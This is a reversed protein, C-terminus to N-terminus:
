KDSEHDKNKQEEREKKTMRRKCVIKKHHDVAVMVSAVISAALAVGQLVTMINIHSLTTLLANSAFLVICMM